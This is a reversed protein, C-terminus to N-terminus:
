VLGWREQPTFGVWCDMGRVLIGDRYFVGVNTYIGMGSWGEVRILTENTDMRPEFWDRWGSEQKMRTWEHNLGFGEVRIGTENTDM